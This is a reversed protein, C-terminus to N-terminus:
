VIKAITYALGLANVLIDEVIEELNDNDFDLCEKIFNELDLLEDQTIDLIEDKVKDIGSIASPLDVLLGLYGSLGKKNVASNVVGCVIRLLDKLEEIGYVNLAPKESVEVLNMNVAELKKSILDTM